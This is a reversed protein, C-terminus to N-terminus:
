RTCRRRVIQSVFDVAGHLEAAGISEDPRHALDISGPGCVVCDLGLKALNGGDTAFPVAGAPRPGLIASLDSLLPASPQTLMAPAGGLMSAEVRGGRVRAREAIPAVAETIRELLSEEAQGPLPRIGVEVLCQDPVINVATGGKIRGINLIAFPAELLDEFARESRLQDALEDLAVVVGGALSIASLGLEPRSSHAAIGRCHVHFHSHGPHLRMPRLSTPEGILAQSPLSEGKARLEEVLLRSGICGVEEDHTWVLVLERDLRELDIEGRTLAVMAAAIFGKMDCSGRALLRGDRETLVFPNSTWPQGDVPVVDLHGSLTLGDTGEPGIRAVLNSKDPGSAHQSVRMGLDEAWEALFATIETTPNTSITPYAVLRALAGVVDHRLEAM